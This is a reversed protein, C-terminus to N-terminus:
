ACGEQPPSGGIFLYNILYLVDGTDVNCDGNADGAAMPQPPTGGLFLYNILHMVDAIDVMGDGSADGYVYGWPTALWDLVSGMVVHPRALPQEQFQDATNMGEFGFGFFVLKYDGQFRLAAVLDTRNWGSGAYNIVTDASDDPALADRSTQNQPSPIGWLYMYWGDGITDGEVGMAQREMVSGNDLSCHLYDTLFTSDLPDGSNTLAEAADQSTMFLRGGKDLFSMLSEVQAPTFLDTKHDGTYWILYKYLNFSFDPEGKGETDWIDYINRLSDLADTYYSQYDTVSGSDDDVILIEANGAWVEVDLDQVYTGSATNGEVSLTFITPRGPFLPDVQFEMPDSNNNASGGTGIDGLYSYDDTFVIGATDASATVETGNIPLWINSITFYLKVTEGGEPRGDGDGGLLDDLIFEDLSLGPRSWNVDMSAYMASDSDSINWVAVQTSNDYYNRSGPNTTDDFARKNYYGPFPDGANGENPSGPCGELQFLGDAQELAVKYHPYAPDGPCWEDNNSGSHDVHYIMLGDAPLYKDFGVRQRNEVMFYQSGGMGSTYLRYSVPSTEAQLIEVDTQNETLQDVSSFGLQYKCWADFHAPTKGSNNWSGSAMMSWKGLGESENGYDYLDPLGLFHGYEHGFVGIDVLGGSRVEPDMNYTYMSVGDKVVVHSMVWNHSWIDDDSGTQEAGPGAHVFILGDVWGDGDADYDAFNVYPDAADLADEALKQTNHPYPGMGNLGYVYYSYLQPMRYWGTVGGVLDLQGYSNELYYDRLSGTPYTFGQSFLLASFESTDRSHVNDDFDVCIVIPSLTDTVLSGDKAKKLPSNPNPQWIGKERAAKARQTWEELRGEKRLREVLEPSLSVAQADVSLALILFPLLLSFIKFGKMM